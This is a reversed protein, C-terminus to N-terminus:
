GKLDSTPSEHSGAHDPAHQDLVDAPRDWEATVNSPFTTAWATVMRGATNWRVHTGRGIGSGIVSGTAVHTTSLAFGLQSSALIVSASSADAALGQRPTIDVLGKGLTRIIRWGGLYTGLAIASAASLKVWFPV